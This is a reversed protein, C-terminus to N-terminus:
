KAPNVIAPQALSSNSAAGFLYSQVPGFIGELKRRKGGDSGEPVVFYHRQRLEKACGTIARQRLWCYSKPAALMLPKIGLTIM